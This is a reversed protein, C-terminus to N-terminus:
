SHCQISGCLHVFFTNSFNTSIKGKSTRGDRERESEREKEPETQAVRIKHTHPFSILFIFFSYQFFSLIFQILSKSATASASASRASQFLQWFSYLRRWTKWKKEEARRNENRREACLVFSFIFINSVFIEIWYIAREFHPEVHKNACDFQARRRLQYRCEIPLSPILIRFAYEFRRACALDTQNPLRKHLYWIASCLAYRNEHTHTHHTNHTCQMVCM